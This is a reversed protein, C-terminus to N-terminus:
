FPDDRGTILPLSAGQDSVKGKLSNTCAAEGVVKPHIDSNIHWVHAGGPCSQTPPALILLVKWAPTKSREAEKVRLMMWLINSKRILHGLISKTQNSLLAFHGTDKSPIKFYIERFGTMRVARFHSETLAGARLPQLSMRSADWLDGKMFPRRAHGRRKQRM